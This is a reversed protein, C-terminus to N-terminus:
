IKNHPFTSNNFVIQYTNSHLQLVQSFQTAEHVQYHAKISKSIHKVSLLPYSQRTRHSAPLKWSANTVSRSPTLLCPITPSLSENYILTCTMWELLSCKVVHLNSAYIVNSLLEKNNEKCYYFALITCSYYENQKLLRTNEGREHQISHFSEPSFWANGIQFSSLLPNSLLPCHRNM